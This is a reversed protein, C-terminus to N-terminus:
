RRVDSNIVKNNITINNTTESQFTLTRCAYDNDVVSAVDSVCKIQNGFCNSWNFEDLLIAAILDHRAIYTNEEILNKQECLVNFIIQCTKIINNRYAVEKFQVDYCIFNQVNTQTPKIMYYPLINVGYYDDVEAEIEELEKNNLLPVVFENNLLKEKIIQKFRIDDNGSKEKYRLLTEKQENTLKM